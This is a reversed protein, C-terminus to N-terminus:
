KSPDSATGTKEKHWRRIHRRLNYLEGIEKRCHPCVADKILKHVRKVHRKLDGNRKFTAKCSECSFRRSNKVGQRNPAPAITSGYGFGSMSSASSDRAVTHSTPRPAILVMNPTHLSAYM